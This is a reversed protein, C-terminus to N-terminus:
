NDNLYQKDDVRNQSLKSNGYLNEREDVEGCVRLRLSIDRIAPVCYHGSKVPTDQFDRAIMYEAANSFGIRYVSEVIKQLDEDTINLDM